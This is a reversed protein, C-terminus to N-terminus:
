LFEKFSRKQNTKVNANKSEIREEDKSNTFIRELSCQNLDNSNKRFRRANAYDVSNKVIKLDDCLLTGDNRRDMVNAFLRKSVWDPRCWDNSFTRDSKTDLFRCSRYTEQFKPLTVESHDSNPNSYDNRRYYETFFEDDAKCAKNKSDLSALLRKLLNQTKKQERKKVFERREQQLERFTYTRFRSEQIDQVGVVMKDSVAEDLIDSTSKFDRNMTRLAM